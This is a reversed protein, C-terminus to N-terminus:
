GPAQDADNSGDANDEVGYTLMPDEMSSYTEQTTRGIFTDPAPSKALLERSRQITARIQRVHLTDAVADPRYIGFPM